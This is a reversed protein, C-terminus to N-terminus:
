EHERIWIHGYLFNNELLSLYLCDTYVDHVYGGRFAIYDLLVDAFDGKYHETFGWNVHGRNYASTNSTYHSSAIRAFPPHSPLRFTLTLLRHHHNITFSFDAHSEYYVINKFVADSKLEFHNPCLGDARIQHAYLLCLFGIFFARCGLMLPPANLSYNKVAMNLIQFNVYM